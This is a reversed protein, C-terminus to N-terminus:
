VQCNQWFHSSRSFDYALIGAGDGGGGWAWLSFVPTSMNKTINQTKQLSLHSISNKVKHAQNKALNQSRKLYFHEANPM